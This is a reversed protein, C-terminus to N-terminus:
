KIFDLGKLLTGVCHSKLKISDLLNSSRIKYLELLNSQSLKSWQLYLLTYLISTSLTKGADQRM